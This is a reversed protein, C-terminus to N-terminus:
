EAAAIELAATHWAEEPTSCPESQENDGYEIWFEVGDRALIADPHKSYVFAKGLYKEDETMKGELAWSSTQKDLSCRM